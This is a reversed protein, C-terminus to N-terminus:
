GNSKAEQGRAQRIAADFYGDWIAQGTRKAEDLRGKFFGANVRIAEAEAEGGVMVAFDSWTSSDPAERTKTREKYVRERVTRWKRPPPGGGQRDAVVTSRGQGAVKLGQEAVKSGQEAVKFLHTEILENIWPMNLRNFSSRKGPTTILLDLDRARRLLREITRVANGTEAAMTSVYSASGRRSTGGSFFLFKLLFALRRQFDANRGIGALEHVEAVANLMKSFVVANEERKTGETVAWLDYFTRQADDMIHKAPM